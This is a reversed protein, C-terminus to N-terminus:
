KAKAEAAGAKAEAKADAASEKAEAAAEKAVEKAKAALADSQAQIAAVRAKRVAAETKKPDKLLAAVEKEFASAGEIPVGKDAVSQAHTILKQRHELICDNFAPDAEDKTNNWAQAAVDNIALSMDIKEQGALTKHNQIIADHDAHRM